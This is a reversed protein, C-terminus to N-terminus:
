QLSLELRVLPRREQSLTVSWTGAPDAPGLRQKCHTPWLERDIPKTRWRQQYRLTGNGDTWDCGLEVREGEPANALSASLTIEPRDERRVVTGPELTSHAVSIRSLAAAETQQQWGFALAAVIVTTLAASVLLLRKRRRALEARRAAVVRRAEELRHAPLDLEHLVAKVEDEDLLEREHEATRAVQEVIEGLEDRDIERKV